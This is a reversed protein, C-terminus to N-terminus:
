TTWDFELDSYMANVLLVMDAMPTAITGGTARIKEVKKQENKGTKMKSHKGDIEIDNCRICKLLKGNRNFEESNTDVEVVKLSAVHLNGAYQTVHFSHWVGGVINCSLHYATELEGAGVFGKLYLWSTKDEAVWQSEDPDLAFVKFEGLVDKRGKLFQRVEDWREVCQKVVFSM